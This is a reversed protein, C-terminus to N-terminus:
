TQPSCRLRVGIAPISLQNLLLSEPRSACTLPPGSVLSARDCVKADIGYPSLLEGVMAIGEVDEMTAYDESLTVKTLQEPPPLLVRAEEPTWNGRMTQDQLLPLNRVAKMGLMRVDVETLYGLHLTILSSLRGVVELDSQVCGRPSHWYLRTLM